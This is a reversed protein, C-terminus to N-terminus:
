RNLIGADTKRHCDLRRSKRDVLNVYIAAVKSAVSTLGMVQAALHGDTRRMARLVLSLKNSIDQLDRSALYCGKIGNIVEGVDGVDVSVIPLGCAVAERVAVPSGEHQSTLVLVDCANMYTAVTEHPESHITVLKLDPFQEQLLDVAGRVLDFRKIRRELQYPFLVLRSDLPLGLAQRAAVQPRPRFRDLDIGYPIVHADRRGLVDRMERTMVIVESALKGVLRSIPRQRRSLLDSGRYTVVVPARSQLCAVLGCYAGFHAHVVDYRRRIQTSWFVRWVASLYSWRSRRSHIVLVDVDYGLQEIAHRQEAICPSDGPTEDTPYRNTVFLVRM